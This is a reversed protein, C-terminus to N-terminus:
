FLGLVSSASQSALSLSNVALQQRTQLTLYEASTENMDALVLKDAGVELVDVLADTFTQRTQIISLKNGLESSAARVKSIAEKLEKLSNALDEKTEWKRTTIGASLSRMDVGKIVFNHNRDENFVINLKDDKLLNVGQYSSDEIMDDLQDLIKQYGSMDQALIKPTECKEREKIPNYTSWDISRDTVQAFCGSNAFNTSYLRVESSSKNEYLYDSTALLYKTSKNDKINLRSGTEFYMSNYTTDNLWGTLRFSDQTITLEGGNYVNVKNGSYTNSNLLWSKNRAVVTNLKGYIDLVGSSTSAFAGWSVNKNNMNLEAGKNVIVRGNSISIGARIGDSSINVIGNINTEGNVSIVGQVPGTTIAQNVTHNIDLNKIEGRGIVIGNVKTANGSDINIDLDSLVSNTGCSIGTAQTGSLNLRSYREKGTYGTFYETGVLKQNNKLTITENEFYNINGYVCITEKNAAIADKLEQATSVVAGNEGIQSMIWEKTPIVAKEYSETAIITAQELFKDYRELGEVAAKITQIGQSMSDLLSNLDAARHTLSRAQYYSSANDIANNVKKGTSLINQTKSMQTAINGLSLLNSRMSSSLTINYSM